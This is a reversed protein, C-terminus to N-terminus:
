DIVRYVPYRLHEPEYYPSREFIFDLLEKSSKPFDPNNQKKINISDQIYPYAELIKAAKDEFVYAAYGEKRNLIPDFFNWAFYSDETTPELVEILFRNASQNMPIYYDGKRFNLKIRKAVTQVHSNMHHGEYAGGSNSYGTIKYYEVVIGTDNRLQTMNINNLKLLDIVKWWGQPIIYASPKHIVGTSKFSNFYPITKTFPQTTDYYLRPLGSVASPKYTSEFGKFLITDYSSTDHVFRIPFKSENITELKAQKRIDSIERSNKSAFAILSQMFAYTANVRKTYPKLMHTETMFAFCHFLAAYGTSYRPSDWFGNWGSEVKKNSWHNVYPVLDYGKNQMAAYLDPEFSQRIYRGMAPSLKQHHSSLLTIIHQYDAGNSVHNDVFIDPDLEHFITAFSRTERSDNKIFDRNLDLNQSNGRSGFAEPGDQDIRYFSSRNLSGGINFVPIIALVVNDPLQYKNAVIDRVLLISADIGDPEGPHIGNNILIIRQNSKKIQRIDFNGSNNVLVLHLPINADTNGKQLLKVKGSIADIKQWWEIAEWYTPTKTGNSEEFITSPIQAITTSSHMLFYFVFLLQYKM